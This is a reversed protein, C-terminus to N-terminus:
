GNPERRQRTRFDLWVDLLGVTVLVVATQPLFLLLLVYAGFLWRRPHPMGAFVGHAVALGQLLFVTLVVTGICNIAGPLAVGPILWPGAVALGLVGVARHVRLQRFEAGFGGPNYLLAQWWRALYLSLLLQLLFGAAAMGCMMGSLQKIVDVSQTKDFVGADVFRQAMPELQQRWFETPDGFGIYQVLVALLGFGLAIQTSLALSRSNRLLLALLGIPLWQLLLFGLAPLPNGFILMMLLACALTAAGATSAGSGVGKRLTILGVSATSPIGLLPFVLSLMALITTVMVSRSFGQMVFSAIGRM